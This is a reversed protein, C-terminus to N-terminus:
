TTKSFGMLQKYRYCPLGRGPLRPVNLFTTNPPTQVPVVFLAASLRFLCLNLMKSKKQLDQNRIQETINAIQRSLMATDNRDINVEREVEEIGLTEQEDCGEKLCHPYKHHHHHQRRSFHHLLIRGDGCSYFIELLVPHAIIMHRTFIVEDVPLCIRAFIRNGTCFIGSKRALSFIKIVTLHDLFQDPRLYGDM